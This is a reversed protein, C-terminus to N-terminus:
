RIVYTPTVPFWGGHPGPTHEFAESLEGGNFCVRYANATRWGISGVQGMPIRGVMGASPRYLWCSGHVAAPTGAIRRVIATSSGFPLTRVVLTPQVAPTPSSSGGRSHTLYAGSAALTALVVLLAGGIVPRRQNRPGMEVAVAM